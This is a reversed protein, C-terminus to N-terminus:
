FLPHARKRSKVAPTTSVPQPGFIKIVDILGPAKAHFHTLTPMLTLLDHYDTERVKCADLTLHHIPCSSRSIFAFFEAELRSSTLTISLKRLSPLTLHSFFVPVSTDSRYRKDTSCITLSRLSSHDVNSMTGANPVTWFSATYSVLNRSRKIIELHDAVSFNSSWETVIHTLQHWPLALEVTTGQGLHVTHLQPAYEFTTLYPNRAAGTRPFSIALRQLIPLKYKVAVFPELFPSPIYLSLDINLWRHSAGIIDMVLRQAPKTPAGDFAGVPQEIRLTLPCGAARKLWSQALLCRYSSKPRFSLALSSWLRPSSLALEQWGKCVQTLLLPAVSTSFNQPFMIADPDDDTTASVCQLFIEYWLDSPLRRTSSLFANHNNIFAQLDNRRSKMVALAAEFAAIKQDVLSIKEHADRLAARIQREDEASPTINTHELHPTPSRKPLSKKVLVTECNACRIISAATISM